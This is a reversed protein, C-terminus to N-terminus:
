DRLLQLNCNNQLPEMKFIQGLNPIIIAAFALTGGESQRKSKLEEESFKLLKTMFDCYKASSM